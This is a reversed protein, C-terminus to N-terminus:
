SFRAYNMQLQGTCSTFTHVIEVVSLSISPNLTHTPFATTSPHEESWHQRVQPTITRYGLVQTLSILFFIEIESTCNVLTFAM